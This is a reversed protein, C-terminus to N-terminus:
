GAALPPVRIGLARAFYALDRRSLKFVAASDPDFDRVSSFSAPELAGRKDDYTVEM